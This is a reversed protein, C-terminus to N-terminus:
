QAGRLQMDQEKEEQQARFQRWKAVNKEHEEYTDAFVHGGSGDAVFFIAKSNAPNLVAKLAEKGPNCIATKPLGEIAYTSDRICM